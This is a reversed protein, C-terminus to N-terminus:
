SNGHLVVGLSGVSREGHSLTIELALVDSAPLAHQMDLILSYRRQRRSGLAIKSVGDRAAEVVSRGVGDVLRTRISAEGPELKLRLALQELEIRDLQRVKLEFVGKAELPNAVIFPLIIPTTVSSVAVLNHQAWHRDGIPDIVPPSRDLSHTVNALLCVHAPASAPIVGRLTASAVEPKMPDRMTPAAVTAVGLFNPKAFGVTPDAWYVVITAVVTASGHGSNRVDVTVEIEQGPVYPTARIGPCMWSVVGAPLPRLQGIDVAGGPFFPTEWYPICLFPRTDDPGADGLRHDSPVADGGAAAPERTAKTM